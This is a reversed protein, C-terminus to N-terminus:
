GRVSKSCRDSNRRASAALKDSWKLPPVGRRARAANHAALTAEIDPCGSIAASQPTIGNDVAPPTTVPPTTVPPTTVPPTTAPPTTPNTPTVGPPITPGTTPPVPNTPGTPGTPTPPVVVTPPVPTTPTTPNTPTPPVIVM